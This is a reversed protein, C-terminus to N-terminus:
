QSSSADVSSGQGPGLAPSTSTTLVPPKTADPAREVTAAPLSPPLATVHIAREGQILQLTAKRLLYTDIELELYGQPAYNTRRIFTKDYDYGLALAMAHLLDVLLDDRKGNWVELAPQAEPPSANNLHDLYAKWAELVPKAKKEGHFEIDIMNLSKVHEPAMRGMAGFSGRTAMLTHFIDLKRKRKEKRDTVWNNVRLAILPSLLMAAIQFVIPEM